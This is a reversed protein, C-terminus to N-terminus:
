KLEIEVRRNAQEQQKNVPNPFLMNENGFGKYDMRNVSVGQDRLYDRVAEAREKSLKKAAGSNNGSPDNVYGKIMIKVKQNNRLFEVVNMLPENSSALLKANGEEFQIGKLVISQGMHIPSVVLAMTYRTPTDPSIYSAQTFVYGIANCNVNVTQMPDLEFSDQSATITVTKDIAVGQIDLEANVPSGTTDTVKITLMTKTLKTVPTPSPPAPKPIPAPPTTDQKAQQIPGLKYLNADIYSPGQKAVSKKTGPNFDLGLNLSIEGNETRDDVVLYYREGKKVNIAKSYASEGKKPVISNEAKRSLGTMGHNSIAKSLNTRVPDNNNIVGLHSCFAGGKEEKFLLFDIDDNPNKPTIDFTLLTDEPAVFTFWAVYHEADFYKGGSNRESCLQDTAPTLAIDNLVSTNVEAAKDCSGYPQSFCFTSSLIFLVLVIKKM